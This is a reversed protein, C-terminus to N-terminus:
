LYIVGLNTKPNGAYKNGKSYNLSKELPQINKLAFGKSLLQDKTKFWDLPIIHDVDWYSGYNNWNMNNDFKNELTLVMDNITYGLVEFLHGSKCESKKKLCERLRKNTRLKLRYNLNNKAKYKDVMHYYKNRMLRKKTKFCEAFIKNKLRNKLSVKYRLYKAYQKEKTFNKKRFIKASNNIKTRYNIDFKYKLRRALNKKFKYEKSKLREKQKMLYEPHRLMYIKMNEKFSSKLDGLFIHSIIHKEAYYNVSCKRSCFYQRGIRRKAEVFIKGCRKCFLEM